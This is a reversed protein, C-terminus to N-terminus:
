QQTNVAKENENGFQENLINYLIIQYHGVEFRKNNNNLVLQLSEPLSTISYNM